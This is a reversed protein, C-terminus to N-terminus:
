FDFQATITLGHLYLNGPNQTTRFGLAAETYKMYNQNWFINFDYAAGLDFHCKENNFYGGWGMGIGAEANARVARKKGDVSLLTVDNIATLVSDEHLHSTFHTYCLSAAMNGFLRFGIGLLWESNVGARLGALWSDSSADVKRDMLPSAGAQFIDYHANHKQNIWGGRVGLFPRMTLHTGQYFPRGISFDFMNFDLHWKGEGKLAQGTNNPDLWFPILFNTANDSAFHSHQETHLRTFTVDATWNDHHLDMGIGAKFGVEYDFDMNVIKGGLNPTSVGGPARSDVLGLELGDEIPLWYILSGYLYFDWHGKTDIRASANYLAPVADGKLQDGQNMVPMESSEGLLPQVGLEAEAGAFAAATALSMLALVAPTSLLQRM